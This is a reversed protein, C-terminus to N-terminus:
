DSRLRRAVAIIIGTALGAALVLVYWWLSGVDPM